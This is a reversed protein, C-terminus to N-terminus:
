SSQLKSGFSDGIRRGIMQWGLTGLLVFYPSYLYLYRARAEFLVLFVSLMLLALAMMEIQIGPNKRWLCVLTGSLVLFWLVQAMPAFLNDRTFLPDVSDIGYVSKVLDSTGGTFTYFNGEQEWSFTGDAYNTLSKQTLLKAIGTPGANEVRELWVSLNAKSRSDPDSFSQSFEVDDASWVGMSDPNFGMMLFHTASFAGSDDVEIGIQKAQNTLGVALLCVIIATAAIGTGRKFDPKVAGADNRLKGSALFHFAEVLLIALLAFVITPKIMYGVISFFVIGAIKFYRNRICAYFFLILCTFLMGYTDSYPVFIWPSLGVFVADLVMACYGVTFGALRKAVFAVAVMSITTCACGAIMLCLYESHIGLAAGIQAIRQFLGEILIQNPYMSFYEVSLGDFDTLYGVDWGTTFFGGRIILMQVAFLAIACIAVGARFARETQLRAALNTRTLALTAISLALGTAIALALYVVDMDSLPNKCAYDIFPAVFVSAILIFGIYALLAIRFFGLVRSSAHADNVNATVRDTKSSLATRKEPSAAHRM